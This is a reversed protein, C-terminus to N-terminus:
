SATTSESYPARGYLQLDHVGSARAQRVVNEAEAKTAAYHNAFIRPLEADERINLQDQYRFYISPTSVHVLRPLREAVAADVLNQTATINSRVFAERHGWPSSLAACHFIVDAGRVLPYVLSPESLDGAVFEVSAGALTTGIAKNRGTARVSYGAQVLARVLHRGLGGTAGTVLARRPSM